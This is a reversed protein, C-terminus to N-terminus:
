KDAFVKKSDMVGDGNTDTLISIRDLPDRDYDGPKLSGSDMWPVVNQKRLGNPYEPTEAVWLRGKHDWNINMPNNILPESAVLTLEFDPHVELHDPLKSPHPVGGEVYRLNEGLEDAKCLMDVNDRKAAWAIGRLIMARVG